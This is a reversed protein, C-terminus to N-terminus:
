RRPSGCWARAEETTDGDLARYIDARRVWWRGRFLRPGDSACLAQVRQIAAVLRIREALLVHMDSGM